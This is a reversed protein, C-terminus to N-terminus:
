IQNAKSSTRGKSRPNDQSSAGVPDLHDDGDDIIASGVSTDQNRHDNLIEDTRLTNHNNGTPQFVSETDSM